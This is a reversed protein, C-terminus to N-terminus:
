LRLSACFALVEVAKPLDESYAPWTMCNSVASHIELLFSASDQPEHRLQVHDAPHSLHSRPLMHHLILCSTVSAARATLPVACPMHCVCAAPSNGCSRASRLLSYQRQGQWQCLIHVCGLPRVHGQGHSPLGPVGQSQQSPMSFVFLDPATIHGSAQGLSSADAVKLPERLHSTCAPWAASRLLPCLLCCLTEMSGTAAGPM